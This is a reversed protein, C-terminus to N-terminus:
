TPSTVLNLSKETIKGFSFSARIASFSLSEPKSIIQWFNIFFVRVFLRINFNPASPSIANSKLLLSFNILCAKGDKDTFGMSTEPAPSEKIARIDVHMHLPEDIMLLAAKPHQM